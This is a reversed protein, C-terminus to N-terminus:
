VYLRKIKIEKIQEKISDLQLRTDSRFDSIISKSTNTDLMEIVKLEVDIEDLGSIVTNQCDACQKLFDRIEELSRKYYIIEAYPKYNFYTEINEDVPVMKFNDEFKLVRGGNYADFGYFVKNYEALNIMHNAEAKFPNKCETLCTLVRSTPIVDQIFESVHRCSGIGEIINLGLKCNLVSSADEGRTFVQEYSFLGKYILKTIISLKTLNDKDYNLENVLKSIVNIYSNYDKILSSYTEKDSDIYGQWISQLELLEKIEDNRKEDLYYREDYIRNSM